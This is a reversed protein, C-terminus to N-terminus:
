NGDVVTPVKTSKRAGAEKYITVLLNLIAPDTPQSQQIIAATSLGEDRRDLKVLCM